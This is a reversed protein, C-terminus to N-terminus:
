CSFMMARHQVPFVLSSPMLFMMARWQVPFELSFQAHSADVHSVDHFEMSCSVCSFKTHSADVHSVDYSETSCSVCSLVQYPFCLPEGNFLFCLLSSPILFMLMM